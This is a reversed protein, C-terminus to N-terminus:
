SERAHDSLCDVIGLQRIWYQSTALRFERVEPDAAATPCYMRHFGGPSAEFDALLALQCPLSTFDNNVYCIKTSHRLQHDQTPYLTTTDLSFESLHVILNLTIFMIELSFIFIDILQMSLM